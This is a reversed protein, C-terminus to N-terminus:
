SYDVIGKIAGKFTTHFPAPTSTTLPTPTSHYPCPTITTLLITRTFYLSTPTYPYSPTYLSSREGVRKEKKTYPPKSSIYLLTLPLILNAYPNYLPKNSTHLPLILPKTNLPTFPTYLHTPTHRPTYPTYPHM